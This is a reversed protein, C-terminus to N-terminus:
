NKNEYVIRKLSMTKKVDNKEEGWMAAFYLVSAYM